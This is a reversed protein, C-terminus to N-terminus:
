MNIHKSNPIYFKQFGCKSWFGESIEPACFLKVVLVSNSKFSKLTDLLFKRAIRKKRKTPKIEALM